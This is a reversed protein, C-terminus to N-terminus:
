CIEYLEKLSHITYTPRSDGRLDAKKPNFWCTDIGAANGGKIDTALSDGIILTSAIDFNDINEKVYDFFEPSPKQYGVSQSDIVKEFLPLLGANKLRVLQTERIGNTIIFLRHSKQLNLCVEMADPIMDYGKGLNERYEKEWKEYDINKGFYEMTEKFRTGFISQVAAAAAPM